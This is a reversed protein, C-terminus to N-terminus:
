QGYKTRLLDRARAVVARREAETLPAFSSAWERRDAFVPFQPAEGWRWAPHSARPSRGLLHMHVRRFGPAIKAGRPEAADNLAWNGAEWYNICGGDLQPLVDLMARGTAAVLFSWQTLEEATLESREWVERPPNVILNGGDNRDVLPMEPLVISGGACTFLTM